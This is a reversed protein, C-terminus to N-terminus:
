TGTNSYTGMNPKKTLRKRRQEGARKRRRAVAAPVSDPKRRGAIKAVSRSSSSTSRSSSQSLNASAVIQFPPAGAGEPRVIEVRGGLVFLIRILKDIGVANSGNLANRVTGVSMGAFTAAQELTYSSEALAARLEARIRAYEADAAANLGEILEGM